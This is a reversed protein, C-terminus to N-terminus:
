GPTIEQTEKQRQYDRDKDSKDIRPHAALLNM